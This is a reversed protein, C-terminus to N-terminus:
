RHDSPSNRIQLVVGSEYLHITDVSDEVAYGQALVVKGLKLYAKSRGITFADAPV